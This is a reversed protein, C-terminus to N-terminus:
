YIVTQCSQICGQSFFFHALVRITFMADPTYQLTYTDADVTSFDLTIHTVHYEPQRRQLSLHFEYLLRSKGVGIAGHV